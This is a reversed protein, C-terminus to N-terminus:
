AAYPQAHRGRPHVGGGKWENSALWEEFYFLWVTAWPVLTEDLPKAPTWEATDPLYLCLRTPDQGYVHPLPRGGALTPLHPREAFVQPTGGARYELRLRYVRSLPTPSVDWWWTL